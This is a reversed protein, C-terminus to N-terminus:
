TFTINVKHCKVHCMPTSSTITKRKTHIHIRVVDKDLHKLSCMTLTEYANTNSNCMVLQPYTIICLPVINIYPFFYCLTKHDIVVGDWIYHTGFLIVLALQWIDGGRGGKPTTVDYAWANAFILPIRICKFIPIM